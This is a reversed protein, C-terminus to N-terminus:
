TTWLSFDFETSQMRGHGLFGAEVCYPLTTSSALALWYSCSNVEGLRDALNIKNSVCIKTVIFRTTLVSKLRRSPNFLQSFHHVLLKTLRWAIMVGSVGKLSGVSWTGSRYTRRGWKNEMDPKCNNEQYNSPSISAHVPAAYISSLNGIRTMWIPRPDQSFQALKELVRDILL